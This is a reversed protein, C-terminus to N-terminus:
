LMDSLFIPVKCLMAKEGSRLEAVLGLGGKLPKEAQFLPIQGRLIKEASRIKPMAEREVNGNQAQQYAETCSPLDELLADPHFDATPLLDDSYNFRFAM